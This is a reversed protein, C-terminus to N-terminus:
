AFESQGDRVDSRLGEVGKAIRETLPVLPDKMGGAQLGLMANASFTGKTEISGMSMAVAAGANGLKKRAELDHWAQHSKAIMAQYDEEEAAADTILRQWKAIGRIRKLKEEAAAIDAANGDAKAATLGRAADLEKQFVADARKEAEKGAEETAKFGAQKDAEIIGLSGKARDRIDKMLLHKEARPIWWALEAMGEIIDAKIVTTWSKGKAKTAVGLQVAGVQADIIAQNVSRLALAMMKRIREAMDYVIDLLAGAGKHWEVWLGAWLVQAALALDGAFMADKIGDFTDLATAKMSAWTSTLSTKAADWAVSYKVLAALALAVGGILLGTPSFLALAVHAAMKIGTVVLGFLVGLKMIATGMVVLALGAGTVALALKFLSVVLGRNEKLWKAVVAVNKTTWEAAQKLMPILSSGAIFAVNRMVRWLKTMTDRFVVAAEADEKSITLGLDRMDQQLQEIGAAGEAMMPLLKTGARGFLEMALAAKTGPDAIAALRDAILKFQSEPDMGALDAYTLGLLELSDVATSLGQSADLVTAQMRRVAKEFDEVSSGGLEAVAGLESLAEVSIGTRKSMKDLEDGISTFLKAAGLLPTVMAAGLGTMWLGMTRISAGFAKLRRSAKTLGRVLASDDAFIEIFARGARIAGPSAKAM